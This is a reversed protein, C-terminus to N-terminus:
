PLTVVCLDIDVAGATMSSLNNVTSTFFAQVIGSTSSFNPAQVLERGTAQMNQAVLYSTASGSSDGVSMTLTTTGTFATPVNVSVGCVQQNVGLQLLNVTLTTSAVSNLTFYDYPVEVPLWFPKNSSLMSIAAAARQAYIGYGLATPHDQDSQHWTTDATMAINGMIPDNWTDVIGDCSFTGALWSAYLATNVATMVTNSSPNMGDYQGPIWVVKALPSASHVSTCFSSIAAEITAATHSLVKYDNTGGQLIVIPPNPASGAVYNNLLASYVQFNTNMYAVPQSGQGLNYYDRGYQMIRMMQTPYDGSILLATDGETLSDGAFIYIGQSQPATEPFVGAAKLNQWVAQDVQAAQTATQASPYIAVAYINGVFTHGSGLGIYSQTNAAWTIATAAEITGLGAKGNIYTAGTSPAYGISMTGRLQDALVNPIGSTPYFAPRGVLVTLNAGTTSDLIKTTGDMYSPRLWVYIMGAGNFAATPCSIQTNSNITVGEVPLWVVTGATITCNYGNGSTDHVTTGSGENFLYVAQAGSPLIGGGSGSASGTPYVSSAVLTALTTACLLGPWFHHWCDLVTLRRKVRM